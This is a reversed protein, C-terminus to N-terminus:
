ISLLRPTEYTDVFVGAIEELDKLESPTGNGHVAQSMTTTLDFREQISNHFVKVQRPIPKGKLFEFGRRTISWGASRDHIDEGDKDKKMVKAILGLKSSITQRSILTYDKIETPLHIKNAETFNKGANMRKTIVQAMACLLKVDLYTVSYIYVAMSEGCNACHTRDKLEPVARLVNTWLYDMNDAMDPHEQVLRAVLQVIPRMKTAHYEQPKKKM